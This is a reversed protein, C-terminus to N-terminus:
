ANRSPTSFVPPIHQTIVIGPSAEPLSKLVAAIAETGGTSAGIAVVAGNWPMMAAAIGAAVPYTPGSENKRDPPPDHRVIRAAAAARIKAALSGRLEGM